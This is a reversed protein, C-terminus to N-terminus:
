TRVGEVIERWQAAEDFIPRFDELLQAAQTPTPPKHDNQRRHWVLWAKFRTILALHSSTRPAAKDAELKPAEKKPLMDLALIGNRLVNNPEEQRFDSKYDEALETKGNKGSSIFLKMYRYGTSQPIVKGFTIDYYSTWYGRGMEKTVKKREASLLCGIKVALDVCRHQNDKTSSLLNSLEGGLELIRATNETPEYKKIIKTM